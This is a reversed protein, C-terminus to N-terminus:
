REPQKGTASADDQEETKRSLRVPPFAGGVAPRIPGGQRQLTGILQSLQDSMARLLQSQGERLLFFHDGPIKQLSFSGTTHQSWAAIEDDNVEQDDSGVFASVSCELPMEHVYSYTETLAFDARLAPMFVTMLEGSQLVEDPTGSLRRLKELFSADPLDYTPAKRDPLHPARFGSVFLHAPHRAELRRLRRCLEFALLAGMSHGFFVFPKEPSVAESLANVLPGVQRFPPELLRDERGPLQIACLEVNGPLKTGWKRFASAGGGAFPFCFLQLDALPRRYPYRLWVRTDANDRM